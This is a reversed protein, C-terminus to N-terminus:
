SSPHARLMLFASQTQSRRRTRVSKADGTPYLFRCNVAKARCKKMAAASAETQTEYNWVAARYVQSMGEIDGEVLAKEDSLQLFKRFDDDGEKAEAKAKAVAAKREKEAIQAAHRPYVIHCAEGVTECDHLAAANAEAQTEHNWAAAWARTSNGSGKSSVAFAKKDPRSEFDKWNAIQKNFSVERLEKPFNEKTVRPILADPTGTASIESPPPMGFQMICVGFGLTMLLVLAIISTAVGGKAFDRQKLEGRGEGLAQSATLAAQNDFSSQPLGMGCPISMASLLSVTEVAQLKVGAAVVLPMLLVGSLSHGLFTAAFLVTCLLCCMFVVIHMAQFWSFSVLTASLIAGLATERVLFAMVNTGGVTALLDWELELFEERSMFGSGFTLTVLALSLSAPHGLFPELEKAFLTIGAVASCGVCLFFLQTRTLPSREETPCSADANTKEQSENQGEVAASITPLDAESPLPFCTILVAWAGIILLTSFPVSVLIWSWLSISRDFEELLAITILNVPSSIPLWTSGANSAFAIGLFLRKVIPEPVPREAGSSKLMPKVAALMMISGSYLVSCAATGGLMLLLLFLSSDVRFRKLLSDAIREVMGCKTFIGNIVLAGLIMFSINNFFSAILFTSTAVTGREDGLAACSTGLVPIFLATCYLPMIQCCNLLLVCVIVVLCRNYAELGGFRCLLPAGIIVACVVVAKAAFLLSMGSSQKDADTTSAVQVNSKDANMPSALNGVQSSTM